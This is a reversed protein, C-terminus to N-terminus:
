KFFNEYFKRKEGYFKELIPLLSPRIKEGSTAHIKKKIEKDPLDKILNIDVRIHEACKKLVSSPNSKIERFDIFLFQDEPYFKLWNNICTEYDGRKISGESYFHDIFWQDSAESVKMEARNLAMLASSWAREIPDRMLYIIKAQSFNQYVMEITETPLIAYAPTIDGNRVGHNSFLSNYWDIGNSYNQDWFHVEKGGPFKIEPHRSLNEYLWTTGCKQAGIGIFNLM